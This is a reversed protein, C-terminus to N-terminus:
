NWENEEERQISDTDVYGFKDLLEQIKDKKNDKCTEDGVLAYNEITVVLSPYLETFKPFIVLFNLMKERTKISILKDLLYEDEIGLEIFVQTYYFQPDTYLHVIFRQIEEDGLDFIKFALLTAEYRRLSQAIYDNGSYYFDIFNLLSICSEEDLIEATELINIFDIKEKKQLVAFVNRFQKPIHKAKAVLKMIVQPNEFANQFKLINKDILRETENYKKLIDGLWNTIRVFNELKIRLGEM